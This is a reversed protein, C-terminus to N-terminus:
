LGMQAQAAGLLAAPCTVARLISPGLTLPMWGHAKLAEFEGDTIGGEPGHTLALAERALSPNRAGTPLEYAVWRQRPEVHFLEEFPQVPALEPLRTRHSQEAAAQILRGWREVRAETKRRDFESRAYIVPVLRTAGLEVAPPLMDDVLALQATVPFYLELPFPPERDEDLPGVLRVSAGRKTAEALDARWPGSPLVVELASGPRLRLVQVHRAQEEDLTLLLNEAPPTPDQLFLRPLSM